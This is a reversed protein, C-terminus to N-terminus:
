PMTRVREVARDYDEPTDVDTLTWVPWDVYYAEDAHARVVAKGCGEGTWALLEPFLSRRFVLPPATVDGYRSVVLPVDNTAAIDVVKRAMYKTTFPMDGLLILVAEIEEPLQRLGLHLSTSMPGTYDPNVVTECGLGRLDAAVKDAEFGIVAVLPEVGAYMALRATRRAIPEGELPLRMKNTGMRTGAGAALLIGAVPFGDDRVSM